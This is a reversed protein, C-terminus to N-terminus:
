PLLCTETEQSSTEVASVVSKTCNLTAATGIPIGNVGCRVWMHCYRCKTEVYNGLEDDRFFWAKLQHGRSECEQTARQKCNYLDM